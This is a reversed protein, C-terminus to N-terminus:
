HLDRRDMSPLTDVLRMGFIKLDLNLCMMSPLKRSIMSKKKVPYNTSKKLLQHKVKVWLNSLKLKLLNSNNKQSLISLCQSDQDKWNLFM